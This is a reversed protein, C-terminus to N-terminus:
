KGSRRGTRIPQKPGAVHEPPPPALPDPKGARVAADAWGRRWRDRWPQGLDGIAFTPCDTIPRHNEYAYGGAEYAHDLQQQTLM